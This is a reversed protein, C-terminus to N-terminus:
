TRGLLGGRVRAMPKRGPADWEPERNGQGNKQQRLKAREAKLVPDRHKLLDGLARTVVEANKPVHGGHSLVERARDLLALQELTLTLTVQVTEQGPNLTGDPTVRSLFAECERKTKNRIGELILPANAETVKGAVMALQSLHTQGSTYLDVFRPFHHLVKAAQLRKWFVDPTLGLATIYDDRPLMLNGSANQGELDYLLRLSDLVIEHEKQHLEVAKQFQRRLLVRIDTTKESDDAGRPLALVRALLQSQRQNM